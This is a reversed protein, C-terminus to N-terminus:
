LYLKFVYGKFAMEEITWNHNYEDWYYTITESNHKFQMTQPKWKDRLFAVYNQIPHLHINAKLKDLRSMNQLLIEQSITKM